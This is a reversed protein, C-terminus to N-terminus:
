DLFKFTSLIQNLTPNYNGQFDLQKLFIIFGKGNHNFYIRSANIDPGESEKTYTYKSANEGGINVTSKPRNLFNYNTEVQQDQAWITLDAEPSPLQESIFGCDTMKTKSIEVISEDEKNLFCLPDYGQQNPSFLYWYKPYSIRYGYKNNKIHKGAKQPKM